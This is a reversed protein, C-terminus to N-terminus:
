LKFAWSFAVIGISTPIWWYPPLAGFPVIRSYMVVGLIILVAGVGAIVQDGRRHSLISYRPAPTGAAGKTKGKNKAQIAVVQAAQKARERQLIILRLYFVLVAAIVVALGTDIKM